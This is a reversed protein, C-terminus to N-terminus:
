IKGQMSEEVYVQNRGSNKAIYLAQDAKKVAHNYDGGEYLTVGISVTVPCVSRAQTEITRRIKEARNVACVPSEQTILLFEEGGWRYIKDERDVSTELIRSLM